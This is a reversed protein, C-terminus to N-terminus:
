RGSGASAPRRPRPAPAATTAATLLARVPGIDLEGMAAVPLRRPDDSIWFRLRRREAPADVRAAEGDLRLAQFSGAPTEIPERAAVTGWVRWLRRAGYADFCLAEGVKLPLARLLYFVGVTDLADAASAFRREGSGRPNGMRVRVAGPGVDPFTVETWYRGGSAFFDERYSAPHLDRPRLYSVALSDIKGFRSFFESGLAHARAPLTLAAGRRVPPLLDLTVTGVQIGGLLDVAYELREGTRFPLRRAPAEPLRHCQAATPMPAAAAASLLFAAVLPLM